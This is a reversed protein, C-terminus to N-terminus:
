SLKTLKAFKMLLVKMGAKKFNVTAKAQPGIGEMAIIEGDGFVGHLVKDGPKLESSSVQSSDEQSSKVQASDMRVLKTPDPTYRIPREEKQRKPFMSRVPSDELYEEGIEELFRSPSTNVLNGNIFRSKAYSLNLYKEARTLAVYFLRREEEVGNVEMQSMQSPFLNEEMGVIYVYPFELGKSSHVTMLHIKNNDDPNDDDKDSDTMLSVNEMFASLLVKEDSRGLEKLIENEKEVFEKVGNLLEMVNQLRTTGEITFDEELHRKLGSSKMITLVLEYADTTDAMTAFLDMMDAFQVLRAITASKIDYSELNPLRLADLMSVHETQAANRLRELTTDGIKRPPYNIVRGFAEDDNRNLILRLYALLDKVEKREYFSHGAYIKYPFNRKRLAEELVRSQSNTRYLIAFANYPAKNEYIKKSIASVVSQAEERDSSCPMLGIKEGQEGQSFCSKPLRNENNAILFNAANVIIQTSRYNQELRFTKAQPYDRKKFNIINDIKAGRFAYISQSDDGVVTINQHKQALKRVIYYQATNTDQYEDVLIYSIESQLKETVQPFDRLLINMYLLIDDFDMVGEKKCKNAYMSYIECIKERGCSRDKDIASPSNMYNAATALHNKASSIRSLVLGPKYTKEDLKLEKICHRIANKSDSTDYITFNKPFGLLDAYERLIRAFISHFTGMRLRAAKQSGVLEAIRTKMQGAAKNTFTLAMIESPKVGNDLMYAIKYTLVRTKGSGAGAIILNPGDISRVAESQVNNLGCLDIM